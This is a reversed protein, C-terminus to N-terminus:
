PSDSARMAATAAFTQIDPLVADDSVNEALIVYLRAMSTIAPTIAADSANKSRFLM